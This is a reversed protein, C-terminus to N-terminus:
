KELKKTGAHTFYIREEGGEPSRAWSAKLILNRSAPM